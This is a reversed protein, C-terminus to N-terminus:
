DAGNSKNNINLFFFPFFFNFDKQLNPHVSSLVFFVVNGHYFIRTVYNRFEVFKLFFFFLSLILAVALVIGNSFTIITPVSFIVQNKKKGTKM